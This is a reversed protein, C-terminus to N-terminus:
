DPRNEESKMEKWFDEQSMIGNYAEKWKEAKRESTIFPVEMRQAINILLGDNLKLRHKLMWNVLNPTIKIEGINIRKVNAFSCIFKNYFEDLRGLPINFESLLKNKIEYINIDNIFLQCNCKNLENLRRDEKIKINWGDKEILKLFTGEIFSSDICGIFEKKPKSFLNIM